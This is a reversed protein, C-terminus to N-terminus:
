DNIIINGPYYLQMYNYIVKEMEQESLHCSQKILEKPTINRRKARVELPADIYYLEFEAINKLEESSNLYIFEKLFRCDTIIFDFDGNNFDSKLYKFLYSKFYKPWFFEDYSQAMETGLYQMMERLYSILAQKNNHLFNGVIEYHILKFHPFDKLKFHKSFEGLKCFTNYQYLKKCIDDFAIEVSLQELNKPKDIVNGSKDLGYVEGIIKKIPQAFSCVIAHKGNLQIKDIFKNTMYGKGSGITGSLMIIKTKSM